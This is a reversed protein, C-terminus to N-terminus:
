SVQIRAGTLDARVRARRCWVQDVGEVEGYNPEFGEDRYKAEREVGM